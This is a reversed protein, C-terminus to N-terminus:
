QRTIMTLIGPSLVEVRKALERLLEIDLKEAWSADYRMLFIDGGGQYFAILDPELEPSLWLLVRDNFHWKRRRPLHLTILPKLQESLEFTLPFCDGSFGYSLRMETVPIIAPRNFQGKGM